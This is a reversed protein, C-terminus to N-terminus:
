DLGGAVFYGLGFFGCGGIRLVWPSSGLAGPFGVVLVGWFHVGGIWLERGM